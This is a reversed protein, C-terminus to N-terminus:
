TGKGLNEKTGMTRRDKNKAREWVEMKRKYAEVSPPQTEIWANIM